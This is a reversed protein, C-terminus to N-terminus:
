ALDDPSEQPPMDDEPLPEGSVQLFRELVQVDMKMYEFINSDENTAKGDDDVTPVRKVLTVYCLDSGESRNVKLMSYGEYGNPQIQKLRYFGDYNGNEMDTKLPMYESNPIFQFAYNLEDEETWQNTAEDYPSKAKSSSMMVSLGVIVGFEILWVLGLMVGSVQAGRISWAGEENVLAMIKFVGAPNAALNFTITLDAFSEKGLILALWVAWHFYWAVVAIFIAIGMGVMPNRVKGAGIVWTTALGCLFGFGGTLLFSVYVIPNYRIGHAYLYAVVPMVLFAMLLAYVWAMSGVKGSPQYYASSNM